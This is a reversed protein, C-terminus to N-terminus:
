KSEYDTMYLRPMVLEGGRLSPLKYADMAGARGEFPRLEKGEYSGKEQRTKVVVPKRRVNNSTYM